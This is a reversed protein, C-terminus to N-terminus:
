LPTESDKAVDLGSYMSTSHYGPNQFSSLPKNKSETESVDEQGNEKDQQTGQKDKYNNQKESEKSDDLSQYFGNSPESLQPLRFTYQIPHAM